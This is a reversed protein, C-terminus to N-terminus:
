KPEKEFFYLDRTKTLLAISLETYNKTKGLKSVVIFDSEICKNKQLLEFIQLIRQKILVKRANPVVFRTLLNDVELKKELSVVSMVHLLEMKIERDYKDDFKAFEIPFLFPYRYFYFEEAMSFSVTWFNSKGEKRIDIVPFPVFHRFSTDSIQKILIQNEQLDKLINWFPKIKNVQYQNLKVNKFKMFEQLKFSIDYYVQKSLVKRM